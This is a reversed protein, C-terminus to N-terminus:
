WPAAGWVKYSDGETRRFPEAEDYWEDCRPAWFITKPQDFLVRNINVISPLPRHGDALHEAFDALTKLNERTAEVRLVSGKENGLEDHMRQLLAIPEDFVPLYERLRAAAAGLLKRFEEPDTYQLKAARDYTDCFEEAWAFKNALYRYLILFGKFYPLYIDPRAEKEFKDWLNGLRDVAERFSTFKEGQLLHAHRIFFGLPTPDLYASRRLTAGNRQNELEEGGMDEKLDKLIDENGGGALNLYDMMSKDVGYTQRAYATFTEEATTGKAFTEDPCQWMLAEATAFLPGMQVGHYGHAYIWSTVLCGLVNDKGVGDILYERQHVWQGPWLAATAYGGVSPSLVIDAGVGTLLDIAEKHPAIYSWDFIVTGDLLQKAYELAEKDDKECFGLLMDGWIGMRRGRKKLIDRVWCMYDIYIKWKPVDGYMAKCSDCLGIASVEDGGVHILDCDFVDMIDSLMSEVLKRMRPNSTCLANSSFVRVDAKAPDYEGLDRFAQLALFDDTHGIVNLAPIVTINHAKAFKQIEVAQAPSIYDPNHTEPISPFQYRWEIYLYITNIKLEAMSRIFHRFYDDKYAVNIQAYCIQAGRHRWYPKDAIVSCPLAEGYQRAMLELTIAGYLAGAPASAAITVGEQSITLIYGEPDEFCDVYSQGDWSDTFNIKLQGEKAFRSAANTLMDNDFTQTCYLKGSATQEKSEVHAPLPTIMLKKMCIEGQKYM